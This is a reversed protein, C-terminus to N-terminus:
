KVVLQRGSGPLKRTGDLPEVRDALSEWEGDVLRWSHYVAMRASSTSRTRGCGFCRVEIVNGYAKAHLIQSCRLDTM